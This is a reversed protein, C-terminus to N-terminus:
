GARDSPRTASRRALRQQSGFVPESLRGLSLSLSTWAVGVLFGALVDSPWHAGVYIRSLAAAVVLAAALFWCAIYLPRPLKRALLVMALVSLWVFFGVHGSPYSYGILKSTTHAVGTPRPRRIVINVINYVASYIASFAVFPTAPRRLLFTIAIVAAGVGVGVFGSFASVFTNFWGFDQGSVSQVAVEIPRDFFFPAPHIAVLVTLVAFLLGAVIAVAMFRRDIDGTLRHLWSAHATTRRALSPATVGRAM